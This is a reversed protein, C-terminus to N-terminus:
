LDKRIQLGDMSLTRLPHERLLRGVHCWTAMGSTRLTEATHEAEDREPFLAVCTSGSGSMWVKGSRKRLTQLLKDVEESLICACPELDNEGIGASSDARITDAGGASTLTVQSNPENFCQDDYCKFVAPTSLGTGPYALLLHGAPIDDPYSVLKDGVGEALSAEGFLFCPIDAGYPTSFDILEDTSLGLNWMKNAAMIATAADSSGGGLGAQDPLHKEIHVHLGSKVGYRDHLSDLLTFVLNKEGNFLPNSCTVEITEGESISLTDAIDVFVFSTDLEHFGNELLGTVKLHLNIKAPAAFTKM